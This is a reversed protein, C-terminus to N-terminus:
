GINIRKSWTSREKGQTRLGGPAIFGDKEASDTPFLFLAGLLLENLPVGLYERLRNRRLAGGSSWYNPIGRATAGILVNQIASSAAAIHEMNKLSGEFPIPEEEVIEDQQKQETHPEPLWTVLFLVDAANLMHLVKGANLQERQIYDALARCNQTDLTYFRFPLCSTLGHAHNEFGPNCKHHYPASAALELLETILQDTEEQGLSPEWAEHALVKQTKRSKIISDTNM